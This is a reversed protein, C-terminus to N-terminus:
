LGLTAQSRYGVPPFICVRDFLSVLRTAIVAADNTKAAAHEDLLPEVPGCDEGPKADQSEFGFVQLEPGVLGPPLM